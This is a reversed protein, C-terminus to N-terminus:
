QEVWFWARNEPLSRGAFPNAESSVLVTDSNDELKTINTTNTTIQDTHNNIQETHNNIQTTNNNVTEVITTDGTQNGINTVQNEINTVRQELAEIDADIISSSSTGTPRPKNATNYVKTPLIVPFRSTSASNTSAVATTTAKARLSGVRAVSSSRDTSVSAAKVPTIKNVTAGATGSVANTGLARVSPAGFAMLPCCMLVMFVYKKM